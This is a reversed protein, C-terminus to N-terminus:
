EFHLPSSTCTRLLPTLAQMGSVPLRLVVVRMGVQVSIECGLGPLQLTETGLTQLDKKLSLVLGFPVFQKANVDKGAPAKMNM